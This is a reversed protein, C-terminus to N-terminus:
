GKPEAILRFRIRYNQGDPRRATVEADWVGPGLPADAALADGAPVLDLTRDDNEHTPRGLHVRADTVHVPRGQADALTFVLRGVDQSLAARWGLARQADAEQLVENYHQSAVYSNKVVLGTWSRSAFVAMVVNVAIVTGFFCILLILMHRGTFVRGGSGDQEM